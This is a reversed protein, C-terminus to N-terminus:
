KTFKFTSLIQSYTDYWTQIPPPAKKDQLDSVLLKEAEESEWMFIDPSNVESVKTFYKSMGDIKSPDFGNPARLVLVIQKNDKFTIFFHSFEIDYADLQRLIIYDKGRIGDITIVKRSNSVSSNGFTNGFQNNELSKQDALATEKDFGLPIDEYNNLDKVFVSLVLKDIETEDFDLSVNSSYDFSFLNDPDNYTKVVKQTENTTTSTPTITSNRNARKIQGNQYAFYGLTGIGIIMIILLLLIHIFGKQRM